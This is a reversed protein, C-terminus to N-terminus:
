MFPDSRTSRQLLSTQEGEGEPECSGARPGFRLRIPVVGVCRTYTLFARRGGQKTAKHHNIPTGFFLVFFPQQGPGLRGLYRLFLHIRQVLVVVLEEHPELAQDGAGVSWALKTRKQGGNRTNGEKATTPLQRKQQPFPPHQSAANRRLDAPMLARTYSYAYTASHKKKREPPCAFASTRSICDLGAHFENKTM